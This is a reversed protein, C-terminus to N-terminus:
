QTLDNPKTVDYYAIVLATTLPKKIHEFATQQVHNWTWPNKTKLLEHLPKGVTSLNSIYKGLYNVMGWIKTLEQM